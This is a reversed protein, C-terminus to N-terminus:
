NESQSNVSQQQAAQQVEEVSLELAQAIQEITLGAALMPSIAKLKGLRVGEERGEQFVEQYFRTQKLDSTGFMEEMEEKTITPLKYLLITEILQLLQQQKITSNIELKTREILERAEIIATDESAVILRVTAIGIPLSTIKSLEDLYIRRVRESVFFERYHKIDGIDISRSPYLIVAGWDNVPQNQRLYLCVEAFLRSYLREDPQFQVEVFYIPQEIEVTPVFVGDIRFATQKIEISSFQYINAMDPSNGILEFFIDPFEQFIRYFISDTRM